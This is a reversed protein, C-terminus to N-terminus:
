WLPSEGMCTLGWSQCASRRKARRRNCSGPKFDDNTRSYGYSCWNLVGYRVLSSWDVTSPIVSLSSLGSRRYDTVAEARAEPTSRVLGRADRKSITLQTDMVDSMGSEGRGDWDLSMGM